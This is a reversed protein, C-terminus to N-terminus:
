ALELRRQGLGDALPAVRGSAASAAVHVRGVTTNDAETGDATASAQHRALERKEEVGMM